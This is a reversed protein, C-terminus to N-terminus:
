AARRCLDAPLPRSTAAPARDTAPRTSPVANTAPPVSFPPPGTTVGTAWSVTSCPRVAVATVTPSGANPRVAPRVPSGDPIPSGVEDPRHSPECRGDPGRDGHEEHPRQRQEHEEDPRGPLGRAVVGVARVPGARPGVDVRGGTGQQAGSGRARCGPRVLPRLHRGGPLWSGRGPDGGELHGVVRPVDGGGPPVRPARVPHM